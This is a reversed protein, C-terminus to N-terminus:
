RKMVGPAVVSVGNLGRRITLPGSIVVKHDTHSAALVCIHTYEAAIDGLRGKLMVSSGSIISASRAYSLLVPTLGASSM